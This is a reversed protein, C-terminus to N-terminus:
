FGRSSTVRRNPRTISHGTRQLVLMASSEWARAEDRPAVHELADTDGARGGGHRDVRERLRRALRQFRQGRGLGGRELRDDRAQDRGVLVPRARALRARRAVDIAREAAREGRRAVRIAGTEGRMSESRARM